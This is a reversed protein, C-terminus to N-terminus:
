SIHKYIETYSVYATRIIEDYFYINEILTIHSYSYLSDDDNNEQGFPYLQIYHMYYYLYMNYM